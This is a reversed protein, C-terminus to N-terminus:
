GDAAESQFPAALVARYEVGYRPNLIVSNNEIVVLLIDPVGRGM